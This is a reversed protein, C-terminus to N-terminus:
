EIISYFQSYDLSYSLVVVDDRYLQIQNNQHWFHWFVDTFDEYGPIPHSLNSVNNHYIYVQGKDILAYTDQLHYPLVNNFKHDLVQNGITMDLRDPTYRIQLDSTEWVPVFVDKYISLDPAETKNRLVAQYGNVSKARYTDYDHEEWNYIYCYSEWQPSTFYDVLRLLESLDAHGHLTVFYGNSNQSIEIEEAIIASTIIKIEFPKPALAGAAIKDAIYENLFHGIGRYRLIYNIWPDTRPFTLRINVNPYLIYEHRVPVASIGLDLLLACLVVSLFLRNTLQNKPRNNNM